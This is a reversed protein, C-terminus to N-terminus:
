LKDKQMIPITMHLSRRVLLGVVYATNANLPRYTGQGLNNGDADTKLVKNSISTLNFSINWNFDTTKVPTGTVLVELGKNQLLVM